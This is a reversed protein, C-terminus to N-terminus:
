KAKKKGKEKQMSWDKAKQIIANKHGNYNWLLLNAAIQTRQEEVHEQKHWSNKCEVPLHGVRLEMYLCAFVGCDDNGFQQPVDAISFEWEDLKCDVRQEKFFEIVYEFIVKGVPGHDEKAVRGNPKQSDLLFTKRNKM